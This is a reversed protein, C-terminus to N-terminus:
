DKLLGSLQHILGRFQQKKEAVQYIKLKCLNATLENYYKTDLFVGAELSINYLTRNITDFHYADAKANLDKIEQKTM